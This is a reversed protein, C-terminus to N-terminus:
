RRPTPPPGAALDDRLLRSFKQAGALNLHDADWFDADTFRRDGTYNLWTLGHRAALQRLAAQMRQYAAANMGDSYAQAVPLTVLVLRIGQRQLQRAMAEILQTNRPIHEPKMRSHHRQLAVRASASLEAPSGDANFGGPPPPRNTWGGWADFDATADRIRGRLINRLGIEQGYCFYASYNRVHWALHWDRHPLGWEYQYYYGRWREPGEDLQSELSFFSVPLIVLKLAPLRRQLKDLLARDYYLTQGPGALNFAPAGLEAPLIGSEAHSSGLVLVEVAAQQRALLVKKAALQTAPVRTLRYESVGLFAAFPAALALLALILRKM